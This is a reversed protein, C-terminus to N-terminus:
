RLTERAVVTGLHHIRDRLHRQDFRAEAEGQLTQLFGHLHLRLLVDKVARVAQVLRDTKSVEPSAAGGLSVQLAGQADGVVQGLDVHLAVVRKFVGEVLHM